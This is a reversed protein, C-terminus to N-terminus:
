LGGAEDRVAVMELEADDADAMVRGFGYGLLLALGVAGTILTLLLSTIM